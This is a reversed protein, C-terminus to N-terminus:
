QAANWTKKLQVLKFILFTTAGLFFMGVLLWIAAADMFPKLFAASLIVMVSLGAIAAPFIYHELFGWWVFFAYFVILLGIALVLNRGGEDFIGTVIGQTLTCICFLSILQLLWLPRNRIKKKQFLWEVLVFFFTNIIFLGNCEEITNWRYVDQDLYFHVTLNVLIIGILWLPPFGSIIIWIVAFLLWALYFDFADAGTQYVQGFVAWLVGILVTAVCLLIHKLLLSPKKLFIITCTVIIMLQVLGFKQWPKMGAWNYAFFFFVGAAVLVFGLTPLLIRLFNLWATRGAYVNKHLSRAIGESNWNSFRSITHILNRGPGKEAM